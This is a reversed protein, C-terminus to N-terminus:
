KLSTRVDERELVLRGKWVAAEEELGAVGGEEVQEVWEVGEDVEVVGVKM